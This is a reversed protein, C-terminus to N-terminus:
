FPPVICHVHKFGNLGPAFVARRAEHYVTLFAHALAGETCGGGICDEDLRFVTEALDVAVLERKRLREVFNEGFQGCKPVFVVLVFRHDNIGGVPQFAEDPIADTGVETDTGDFLRVAAVPFSVDVGDAVPPSDNGHEILQPVLAAHDDDDNGVALDLTELVRFIRGIVAVSGAQMFCRGTEEALPRVRHHERGLAEAHVLFIGAKSAFAANYAISGIFGIPSDAGNIHGWQEEWKRKDGSINLELESNSTPYIFGIRGEDFDKESGGLDVLIYPLASAYELQGIPAAFTYKWNTMDFRGDNNNFTGTTTTVKSTGDSFYTYSYIKTTYNAFYDITKVLRGQEDKIEETYNPVAYDHLDIKIKINTQPVVDEWLMVGKCTIVGGVVAGESFTLTGNIDAGYLEGGYNVTVAGGEVILNTVKAAGYNELETRLEARGAEDYAPFGVGDINKNYWTNISIDNGIVAGGSKVIINRAEGGLGVILNGGSVNCNEIQARAYSFTRRDDGNTSDPALTSDYSQELRSGKVIISAAECQRAVCGGDVFLKGGILCGSASGFHYQYNSYRVYDSSSGYVGVEDHDYEFSVGVDGSVSCNDASGGYISLSSLSGGSVNRYLETTYTPSSYVTDPKELFESDYTDYVTTIETGESRYRLTVGDLESPPSVYKYKITETTKSKLYKVYYGSPNDSGGNYITTSHQWAYRALGAGGHDLTGLIHGAEHRIVNVLEADNASDDLLVFADGKGIGEALGLFAGYQDFDSTCGIRVASVTESAKEAEIEAAVAKEASSAGVEFRVHSDACDRNLTEALMRARDASIGSPAIRVPINMGLEPNRYVHSGGNFDLTVIRTTRTTREDDTRNQNM